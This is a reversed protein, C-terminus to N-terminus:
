VLDRILELEEERKVVLAAAAVTYRSRPGCRGDLVNELNTIM